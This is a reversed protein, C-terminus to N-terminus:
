RMVREIVVDFTMDSLEDDLRFLAGWLGLVPSQTCVVTYGFSVLKDGARLAALRERWWNRRAIPSSM